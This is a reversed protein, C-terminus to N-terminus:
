TTVTLRVPWTIDCAQVTPLCTPSATLVKAASAALRAPYFLAGLTVSKAFRPGHTLGPLGIFGAFVTLSLAFLTPKSGTFNGPSPQVGPEHARKNFAAIPSGNSWTSSRLSNYFLTQIAVKGSTFLRTPPLTPRDLGGQQHQASIPTIIIM